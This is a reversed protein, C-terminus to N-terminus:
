HSPQHLSPWLTQNQATISWNWARGCFSTVLVSFGGKPCKGQSIYHEWWHSDRALVSPPPPLADPFASLLRQLLLVCPWTWIGTPNLWTLDWPTSYLCSAKTLFTMKRWLVGLHELRVFHRSSSLCRNQGTKHSSTIFSVTSKCHQINIKRSKTKTTSDTREFWMVTQKWIIHRLTLFSLNSISVDPDVYSWPSSTSTSCPFSLFQQGKQPRSGVDSLLSTLYSTYLSSPHSLLWCHNTFLPLTFHQLQPYLCTTAEPDKSFHSYVCVYVGFGSDWWM